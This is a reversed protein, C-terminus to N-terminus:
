SVESEDFRPNPQYLNAPPRFGDVTFALAHQRERTLERGGVLTHRIAGTNFQATAHTQNSLIENAQDRRTVINRALLWTTRDTASPTRI